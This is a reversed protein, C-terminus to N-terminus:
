NEAEEDKQNTCKDCTCPELYCEDWLESHQKALKEIELKITDSDWKCKILIHVKQLLEYETDLLENHLADEEQKKTLKVM